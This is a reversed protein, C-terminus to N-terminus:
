NGATDVKLLGLAPPAPSYLRALLLTYSFPMRSERGLRSSAIARCSEQTLGPNRSEGGWEEQGAFGFRQWLM